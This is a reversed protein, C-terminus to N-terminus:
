PNEFSFEHTINDLKNRHRKVQGTVAQDRALWEFASAWISCDLVRFTVPFRETMGAGDGEDAGAVRYGTGGHQPCESVHGIIERPISLKEINM